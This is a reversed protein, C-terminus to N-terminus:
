GLKAETLRCHCGMIYRLMRYRSLWQSNGDNAKMGHYYIAHSLKDSMIGGNVSPRLPHLRGGVAATRCSVVECNLEGCGNLTVLAIQWWLIMFIVTFSGLVVETSWAQGLWTLLIISGVQLTCSWELVFIEADM